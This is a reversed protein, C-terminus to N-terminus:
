KLPNKNKEWTPREYNNDMPIQTGAVIVVEERIIRPEIM